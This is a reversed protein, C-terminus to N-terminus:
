IKAFMFFITKHESFASIKPIKQKDLSIAIRQIFWFLMISLFMMHQKLLFVYRISKSGFQFNALLTEILNSLYITLYYLSDRGSLWLESLALEIFEVLHLLFSVLEILSKVNQFSFTPSNWTYSRASIIPFFAIAWNQQCCLM